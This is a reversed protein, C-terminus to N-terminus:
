SIPYHFITFYQSAHYIIKLSFSLHFPTRIKHSKIKVQIFTLYYSHIKARRFHGSVMRSMKNQNLTVTKGREYVLHIKGPPNHATPPVKVYTPTDKQVIYFHTLDANINAQLAQQMSTNTCNISTLVYTAAALQFLLAICCYLVQHSFHSAPQKSTRHKKGAFFLEKPVRDLKEQKCPFNVDEARAVDEKTDSLHVSKVEFVPMVAVNHGSARLSHSKLDRPVSGSIATGFITPELLIKLEPLLTIPENTRLTNITSSCLIMGVSDPADTHDVEVSNPDVLPGSLNYPTTHNFIIHSCIGETSVHDIYEDRVYCVIRSVKGKDDNIYIEALPFRKSIRGNFTFVALTKEGKMKHKVQNLVKRTIWNTSSGTDLLTKVKFYRGDNKVVPVILIPSISM